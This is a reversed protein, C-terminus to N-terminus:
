LLLMEPDDLLFKLRQMTGVEGRESFFSCSSRLLLPDEVLDLVLLDELRALLEVEGQVGVSDVWGLLQGRLNSSGLVGECSLLLLHGVEECVEGVLEVKGSRSPIIFTSLLRLDGLSLVQSVGSPQCVDPREDPRPHGIEELYVTVNVNVIGPSM